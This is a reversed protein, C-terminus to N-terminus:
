RFRVVDYTTTPTPPTGFRANVAYFSAGFRTMTSPVDFATNTLTGSVTGSTFDAALTVVEVANLRNRVVYLTQGELWLGDAAMLSAGGLDVVRAEGTRPDVLYLLGLTSHAVLLSGQPTAVIGNANFGPVQQWDGSLPLVELVASPSPRANSALPLSYLEARQSNTFYVANGAVAADNIFGGGVATLQYSAVLEGSGADIVRAQGTPGGAVYLLQSRTDFELGVAIEGPAGPYLVHGEGSRPNLAYISGTALSGVYLVPGRGAAIGEPQWGGPLPLTDSAQPQANSVLTLSALLIALCTQVRRVVDHRM